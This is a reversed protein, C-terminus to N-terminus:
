RVRAAKRASQSTLQKGSTAAMVAPASPAAGAGVYAAMGAWTMGTAAAAAVSAATNGVGGAAPERTTIASRTRTGPAMAAAAGAGAPTAAAGGVGLVVDPGMTTGATMIATATTLLAAVAEGVPRDVVAAQGPGVEAAVGESAAAAVREEVISM